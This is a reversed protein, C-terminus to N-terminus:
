RLPSHVIVIDDCRYCTQMLFLTIDVKKAIELLITLYKTVTCVPTNETEFYEPRYQLWIKGQLDCLRELQDISFLVGSKELTSQMRGYNWASGCIGRRDSNM